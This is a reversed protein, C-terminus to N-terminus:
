VLDGKTMKDLMVKNEVKVTFNWTDNPHPCLEFWQSYLIIERSIREAEGQGKVTRSYTKFGHDIM